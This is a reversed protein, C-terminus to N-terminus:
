TRRTNDREQNAVGRVYQHNEYHAIPPPDLKRGHYFIQSHTQFHTCALFPVPTNRGTGKPCSQFSVPERAIWWWNESRSFQFGLGIRDPAGGAKQCSAPFRFFSGGLDETIGRAPLVGRSGPWINGIDAVGPFGRTAAVPSSGAIKLNHAQRSVAEGCRVRLRNDLGCCTLMTHILDRVIGFVCDTINLCALRRVRHPHPAQCKHCAVASVGQRMRMHPRAHAFALAPARNCPFHVHRTTRPLPLPHARSPVGEWAPCVLAPAGACAACALAALTACPPARASTLRASM